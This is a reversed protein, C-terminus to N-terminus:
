IIRPVPDSRTPHGHGQAAEPRRVPRRAATRDSASAASRRPSAAPRRALDAFAAASTRLSTEFVDARRALDMVNGGMAALDAPGPCLARVRTGAAEALAIEQALRRTAARRLQREVAAVPRKPQDYEFACAPALVLIEDLGQGVCLDLSTPSRTGGDVFRRGAVQVPEYWGPIACSAMVARSLQAAPAGDAGFLVRGGTDFDMAVVRLRDPWRTGAPRATGVRQIPAAADRAAATVLDGVATLTGRGQPLLAALAVMPTLQRPHLVSAALLRPSGIRMRPPPPRSSGLERYDLAPAGPAYRGRESDAMTDVDVGLALLASVVSGASTGLILDFSRVDDGTRSQYARLAGIM